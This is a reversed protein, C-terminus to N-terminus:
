NAWPLLAKIEARSSLVADRGAQVFEDARGFDRLGTAGHFRPEITIDARASGDEIIKWQMVEFAAQITDIIPPARLAFSRRRTAVQPESAPNTLKVGIVVDAGSQAVTANPIPNLLGGDVLQRGHWRVPPFIGPIAMSAGMARAVDGSRFVVETRAMLDVAVIALPLAMQEFTSGKTIRELDRRLAGASLFSHFPLTFRFASAFTQDLLRRLEATPMRSAVAAAIPAGISSGAVFDVSIGLEALGDIVGLHAYGKAGGVGLALGVKRRLAHRAVWAVSRGPEAGPRSSALAAVTTTVTRIATGDQRQPPRAPSSEQLLVTQSGEGAVGPGDASNAERIVLPGELDALLTMASPSDPRACVLVLGYRSQYQSLLDLFDGNDIPHDDGASVLGVMPEDQAAFRDHESLSAPNALAFEVTSFSHVDAAALMGTLDVILMPHRLHAAASRCVAQVFAVSLPTVRTVCGLSRGPRLDRFRQNTASLRRAVVSAIERMVGPNSDCVEGLVAHPIALLETDTAARVTASARDGRLFSMEGFYDGPGYRAVELPLGHRDPVDCRLQGGTVIYLVDVFQGLEVVTQGREYHHISSAKLLADRSPGDLLQFFGSAPLLTRTADPEANTDPAVDL